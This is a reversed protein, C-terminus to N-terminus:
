GAARAGTTRRGGRCCSVTAATAATPKRRWRGDYGDVYQSERASVYPGDLYAEEYDPDDEPLADWESVLAEFEGTAADVSAVTAAAWVPQPPGEDPGVDIEVQVEEGVCGCM